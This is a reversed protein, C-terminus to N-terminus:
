LEALKVRLCGFQCFISLFIFISYVRRVQLINISQHGEANGLKLILVPLDYNSFHSTLSVVAPVGRFKVVTGSNVVSEQIAELLKNEIRSHFCIDLSSDVSVVLNFNSLCITLSKSVQLKLRRLINIRSTLFNRIIDKANIKTVELEPYSLVVLSACARTADEKLYSLDMGGVRELGTFSFNSQWQETDQEIMDEKMQIQQSCFVIPSSLIQWNRADNLGFLVIPSIFLPLLQFLSLYAHLGFSAELLSHQVIESKKFFFKKKEFPYDHVNIPKLSTSIVRNSAEVVLGSFFM